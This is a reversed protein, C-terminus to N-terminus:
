KKGPTILSPPPADFPGRDYLGIAKQMYYAWQPGAIYAGDVVPWFRGNVIVNRGLHDEPNGLAEGFYSATALGRTYGIVWTESNFENTGTKAADPVGLYITKGANDKINYGSGKTLVDQLVNTVAKAVDPKISGPQCAQAQGGIRKGHSDTVDTISWPACYTGNAAFTAYASAMTLPAINPGGLLNGLVSMDLKAGAGEGNHMGLADAARQIDCFDNLGAASAFTATNISQYVGERVTMPRYWQPEDNQLDGSTGLSAVTSSDYAGIVRTCTDRWPHNLPYRRQGANVIQDTPKGEGLWAALTVPKMASGPQFGGAGGLDNGNADTRDVGFNYSTVFDKGQGPLIRTNQAMSLVRGTGPQVTVLATGWKDPNPGATSDVQAQAPGQLRPDLTTTITLGSRTVKQYREDPSAGYAPDNLIQHLVFDCFYQAQVAYACGQRPPNVKLELPTAVADDHEKQSIYGHKLMADLVLNRREVSPGPRATPDYVSPGNVVGALLAAQPLTLDKANVSFFYQSAAQIGYAHTNFFVINLYGALIDDKSNKKELAISLKMERLKDGISKQGNLVVTPDQGQALLNEKLVNAVYQQTLTSAGQRDGKVNAIVARLVGATDIGGHDYFRYDEVAIIANKINPSMADLSVPTRNENYLTAIESGDAAVMKTVLDPPSVSLESPLNDFFQVTGNTAGWTAAAVPMFIGAVLAGCLGSVALFAILRGFAASADKARGM